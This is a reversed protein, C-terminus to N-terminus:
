DKETEAKSQSEEEVHELMRKLLHTPVQVPGSVIRLAQSVREGQNTCVLNKVCKSDWKKMMMMMVQVWMWKIGSARGNLEGAPCLCDSVTAQRQPRILPVQESVDRRRLRQQIGAVQHQLLLLEEPVAASPAPKRTPWAKHVQREGNKNNNNTNGNGQANLNAYNDDIDLASNISYRPNTPVVKVGDDHADQSPARWQFGREQSLLTELSRIREDHTLLRVNSYVAAGLSAICLVYIIFNIAPQSPASKNTQPKKTAAVVAPHKEEKAM